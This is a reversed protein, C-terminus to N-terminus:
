RGMTPMTVAPSKLTADEAKWQSTVTKIQTYFQIGQLIVSFLSSCLCFRRQENLSSTGTKRLLEHGRPLVRKIRHLLVHATPCPHSCERWGVCVCVFFITIEAEETEHLKLFLGGSYYIALILAAMQFFFFLKCSLVLYLM